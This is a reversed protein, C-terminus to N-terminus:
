HKTLMTKFDFPFFFQTKPRLVVKFSHPFLSFNSCSLTCFTGIKYVANRWPGGCKDDPSGVLCERRCESEDDAPGYRGYKRSCLCFQANQIAAYPYGNSHCESSCSKVGVLERKMPAMREFDSQFGDRYCGEYRM